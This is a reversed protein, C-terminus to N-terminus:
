GDRKKNFQANWSPRTLEDQGEFDLLRSLEDQGQPGSDVSHM